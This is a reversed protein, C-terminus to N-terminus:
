MIFPNSTKEKGITTNQGHGSYIITEDHLCLIKDKISKILVNFDGGPLDTRGISGQFIVDGSIIIKEERNLLSIHGPSHGPTFLVDLSVKGFSITEDETIFFKVKPSEQYDILGYTEAIEKSMNLIDLENKHAYLDIKFYDSIFKNGLIHDIHCHTNILKKPILQNSSIFDVLEKRENQNYCGPDVIICEKTKDWLVYTNEQFPNFTFKKINM